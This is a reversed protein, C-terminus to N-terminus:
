SGSDATSPRHAGDAADAEVGDTGSDAVEPGGVGAADAGAADAGSADSGAADADATDVGAADADATDEGASDADAGARDAGDAGAADFGAAGVDATDADAAGADAAAAGTTGADAADAGTTDAGTTDAGTTDADATDADATDADTTDADTQDAGAPDVDSGVADSVAATTAVAVGDVDSGGTRGVGSGADSSEVAVAGAGGDDVGSTEAGEGATGASRTDPLAEPRRYVRTASIRGGGEARDPVSHAVREDVSLYKRGARLDADNRLRILLPFGSLAGADFLGTTYVLQVGLAQAVGFQLELLYGASARGIPNDLFLVGSHGRRGHGRQHARLAAMTCYLVIAATLQQGGSFVDKISSVRLRETRLVADPKLMEVRVGKPMAARVGRLLMSMGDRRDRSRSSGAAAEATRDVVVGLEHRLAADDLEEFRIRLFQQGSWDGLGDPLQSLKQALRVTRLAEGVMGSLRTVIGSRHRDINGLDDDLSRLRPRLAEIWERALAPMESRDVGGIHRHVPSSLTAFRPDQAFRAVADVGAQVKREARSRDAAAERLRAQHQKLGAVADDVDGEFPVGGPEPTEELGDVVHGFGRALEAATRHAEEAAQRVRRARELTTGAADLDAAARAVLERGHEADRPAEYPDIPREDTGFRELEKRAVALETAADARRREADAYASRAQEAAARRSAADAGDPTHLFATAAEVVSRPLGDVTVRKAAADAEARELSGRLDTDVAASAYADRARQFADRLEPLPTDPASQPDPSEESAPTRKSEEPTPTRKSEEPTPTWKSEEPTPAGKSEEPTPAGDVPLAAAEDRANAAISRQRDRTQQAAAAERGAQEAAAGAADAETRLRTADATGTREREELGPRRELEGRLAALAEARRRTEAVTRELGPRDTTLRDAREDLAVVEAVTASHAGVAEDRARVADAAAGALEDLTPRRDRLAAFRDRLRRDDDLTSELMALRDAREATEAALRVRVQEAADEDHLAPNPPVVLEIGPAAATDANLAATAGVAVLCAPLLRADDLVARARAADGADNLLVGGALHPLRELVGGRDGAPLMALYRRGSWATIGAKELVELVSEIEPPDPLLGGDGLAHLAREDRRQDGLLVTREREAARIAATLTEVVLAADADPRVTDVGLLEAPRPEAALEESQAGAADRATEATAAAARAGAAEEQAATRRTEAARREDRITAATTDAEALAATAAGAATDAADAAAEVDGPGSGAPLHGAVVAAEIRRDLDTLSDRAQSAASEARVADATREVQERHAAGARDEAASRTEEAVAAADDAEAATRLLAASLERAADQRAQLAPRAKQEEEDVRARLRAAEAAAVRHALVPEVADRATSVAATEDRERTAADAVRQAAEVTLGATLRRLEDVTEQLRESARAATQEAEVAQEAEGETTRSRTQEAIRRAAIQSATTRLADRAATEAERATAAAEEASVMPELLSLTGDVFERESELEERQALRDAYGAVLEAVNQPETPDLVARLLFDVFAEDSSFSFAEAAEGEGANMARQYRFLEPDLGLDVLHRTWDRHGTEWVLETGPHDRHATHLRDKFAALTIRKREHTFPLEDMGYGPVPRFAYWADALKEPDSSAVHGRWESAKGTVLLAGTGVHVWECVVHAVDEALVFNELVTTSTTGVVQRRGPLLVSFILKLLVSKGGGNELFLVSAPSPRRPTSRDLTDPAFLDEQVAAEIPRGIGRLDLTVDQFRAATPGVSFLRVRALEYM